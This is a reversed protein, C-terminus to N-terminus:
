RMLFSNAEVVPCLLTWYLCPSGSRLSIWQLKNKLLPNPTFGSSLAGRWSACKDQCLWWKTIPVGVDVSEAKAGSSLKHADLIYRMLTKRGPVSLAPAQSRPPRSRWRHSGPFTPPAPPASLWRDCSTGQSVSHLVAVGHERAKREASVMGSKKFDLVRTYKAQGRWMNCCLSHWCIGSIETHFKYM